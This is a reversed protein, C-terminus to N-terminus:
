ARVSRVSRVSERAKATKKTTPPTQLGADATRTPPTQLGADKRRTVMAPLYKQMQQAMDMTLCNLITLARPPPIKLDIIVQLIRRRAWQAQESAQQELKRMAARKPRKSNM